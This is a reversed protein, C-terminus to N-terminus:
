LNYYDKLYQYKYNITKNDNKCSKTRQLHKKYQSNYQFTKGCKECFYNNVM